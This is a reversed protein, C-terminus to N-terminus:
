RRLAVDNRTRYAACGEEDKDGGEEEEVSTMLVLLQREELTELGFRTRAQEIALVHVVVVHAWGHRAVSVIGGRDGGVRM